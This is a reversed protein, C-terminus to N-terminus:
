PRAHTRFLGLYQVAGASSGEDFVDHAGGAGDGAGISNDDDGAVLGVSHFL